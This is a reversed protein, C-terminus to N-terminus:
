LSCHAAAAAAAPAEEGRALRANALQLKCGGVRHRGAPGGRKPGAASQCVNSRPPWENAWRRRSAAAAAAVGCAASHLSYNREKKKKPLSQPSPRRRRSPHCMQRGAAFCVGLLLLLLFERRLERTLRGCCKVIFWMQAAAVMAM